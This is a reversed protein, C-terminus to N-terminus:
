TPSHSQGSVGQRSHRSSLPLAGKNLRKKTTAKSRSDTSWIMTNSTRETKIAIM